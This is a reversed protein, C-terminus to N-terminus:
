TGAVFYSSLRSRIQGAIEKAARTEADRLGRDKAFRQQQGPINYTVRTVASGTLATRGTAIETLTYNADLGFNEFEPRLTTSDLIISSKNSTMRITLKHTPAGRGAGGALDFLLENRTEVAIRAMPSGLPAEIQAVDVATLAERLASGGTVSRDGYLPQFCGALLAAVGGALALRILRSAASTRDPSWM